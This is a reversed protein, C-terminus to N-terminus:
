RIKGEEGTEWLMASMACGPEQRADERIGYLPEWQTDSAPCHPKLLGHGHFILSYVIKKM